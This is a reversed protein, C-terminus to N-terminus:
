KELADEFTDVDEEDSKWDAKAANTAAISQHAKDRFEKEEDDMDDSGNEPNLGDLDDVDDLDDLDDLDDADSDGLDIQDGDEYM